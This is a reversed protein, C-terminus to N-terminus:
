RRWAPAMCASSTPATTPTWPSVPSWRSSRPSQPQCRCTEQANPRDPPRHACLGRRCRGTPTTWASPWTTRPSRWTCARQAYATTAPSTSSRERRPSSTISSAPDLAEVLAAVDEPRAAPGLKVAVPNAIRAALAVHPGDAQRTRDGVWLLHASSAYATGAVAAPRVQASSAYATGTIGAPRVLPEEYPHLLAEHSTFVPYPTAIAALHRLVEASKDYALLLRGAQPTRALPTAALGNVADGMYIPVHSGDAVAESPYSRPKAFQGAIRGVVVTRAPDRVGALIAALECLQAAKRTVLGPLVEAFLEACDGAHLVFGGATAIGALRERLARTSEFSVLAPRRALEAVVAALDGGASWDPMPVASAAVPRSPLIPNM